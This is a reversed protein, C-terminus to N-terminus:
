SKQGPKEEDESSRTKNKVTSSSDTKYTDTPKSLLEILSNFKDEMKKGFAEFESRSVSTNITSISIDDKKVANSNTSSFNNTTTKKIPSDKM